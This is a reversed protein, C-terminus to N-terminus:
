VLADSAKNYYSAKLLLGWIDGTARFAIETENDGNGCQCSDTILSLRDVVGKEDVASRGKGPQGPQERDKSRGIADEEGDEGWM